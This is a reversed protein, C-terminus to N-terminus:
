TKIGVMWKKGGQIIIRLYNFQLTCMNYLIKLFKEINSKSFSGEFLSSKKKKAM